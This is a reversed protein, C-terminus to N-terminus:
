FDIDANAESKSAKADAPTEKLHIGRKQLEEVLQKANEFVVGDIGMMKAAAVNDAKNDVFLLTGPAMKLRELLIEYAKVGPKDAGIEYSLLVPYFMDYYGLQRKLRAQSMRVNSLLPTQYGMQQLEKVVQVMGPIEKIAKLRTNDLQELWDSPLQHGNETAYEKWFNEETGGNVLYLKLEDQVQMAEAQSINFEKAIFEGIEAKDGKAIVGGFDFVIAQIKPTAPAEVVQAPEAQLAASFGMLCILFATFLQYPKMLM